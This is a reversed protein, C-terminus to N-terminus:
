YIKVKASLILFMILLGYLAKKETLELHDLYGHFYPHYLECIGIKYQSYEGLGSEIDNDINNSDNNTNNSYNDTINEYMISNVM